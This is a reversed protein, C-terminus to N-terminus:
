LNNADPGVQRYITRSRFIINHATLSEPVNREHETSRGKEDDVLAKPVKEAGDLITNRAGVETAFVPLGDRPNPLTLPQGAGAALKRSDANM